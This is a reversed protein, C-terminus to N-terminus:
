LIPLNLYPKVIHEVEQRALGVFEARDCLRFIALRQYRIVLTRFFCLQM